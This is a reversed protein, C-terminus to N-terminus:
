GSWFLNKKMLSMMIFIIFNCKSNSYFLKFVSIFRMLEINRTIFGSYLFRKCKNEKRVCNVTPQSDKESKIFREVHLTNRCPVRIVPDFMQKEKSWDASPEVHTKEFVFIAKNQIQQCTTLISVYKHIYNRESTAKLLKSQFTLHLFSSIM